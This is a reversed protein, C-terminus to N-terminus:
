NKHVYSKGAIRTETYDVGLDRALAEYDLYRALTEPIEGMLGEDVFYEALNRTSDMEYIDIDFDAYETIDPDFDYGCEGVAIILHVKEREDLQECLEFFKSYTVQSLGIASALCCDIDEGDIFQIEFDEVPEGFDNVSTAVKKLYQESSTFYFGAASIDYPQAYLTTM